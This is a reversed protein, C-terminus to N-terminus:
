QKVGKLNKIALYCSSCIYGGMYTLREDTYGMKECCVCPVYEVLEVM